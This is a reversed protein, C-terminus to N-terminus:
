RHEVVTGTSETDWVKLASEIEAPTPANPLQHKGMLCVFDAFDIM